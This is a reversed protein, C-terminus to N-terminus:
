LAIESDSESFCDIENSVFKQRKHSHFRQFVPLQAESSM